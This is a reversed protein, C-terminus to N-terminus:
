FEIFPLSEQFKKSIAYIINAVDEVYTFDREHKGKNYLDIPKNELLRKTFKFLSMDPRGYPGYVTFFRM